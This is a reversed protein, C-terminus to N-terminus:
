ASILNIEAASVCVNILDIPLGVALHPRLAEPGFPAAQSLPTASPFDNPFDQVRRATTLEGGVNM